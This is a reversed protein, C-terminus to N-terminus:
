SRHFKQKDKLFNPIELEEKKQAEKEKVLKKKGVKTQWRQYKTRATKVNKGLQNGVFFISELLSKKQLKARVLNSSKLGGTM